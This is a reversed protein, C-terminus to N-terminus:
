GSAAFAIRQATYVRLLVSSPRSCSNLLRSACRSLPVLDDGGADDGGDDGTAGAPGRLQRADKVRIPKGTAVATANWGGKANEGDIRVDITKKGVKAGYSAGVQVDEKKMRTDGTVSPNPGAKGAFRRTRPSMFGHRPHYM